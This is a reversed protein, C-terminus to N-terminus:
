KVEVQGPKGLFFRAPDREMEEMVRRFQEVAAQADVALNRIDYLGGETFDRIGRRNESLLAEAAAALDGIKREAEYLGSIGQSLGEENAAVIADARDALSKYSLITENTNDVLAVIAEKRQVIEQTIQSIDAAAGRLEVMTAKVDTAADTINSMIHEVNDKNEGFIDKLQNLVASIDQLVSGISQEMQAMQSPITPIQQYPLDTEVLNVPTDPRLVLQVTQQGTVLSQPNLQARLGMKILEDARNEGKTRAEELGRVHDLDVELIVPILFDLTDPNLQVYIDTVTGIDVGRFQVPAGARLGQLSGSFFAVIQSREQFIRGSGFVIVAIVALLVAGIVFGGVAKPNAKKM